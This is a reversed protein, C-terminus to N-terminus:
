QLQIDSLPKQFFLILGLTTIGMERSLDSSVTDEKSVTEFSAHRVLLGLQARHM